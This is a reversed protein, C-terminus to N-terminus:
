EDTLLLVSIPLKSDDMSASKSAQLSPTTSTM